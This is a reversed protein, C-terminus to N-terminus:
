AASIDNIRMSPTWTEFSGQKLLEIDLKTAYLKTFYDFISLIGEDIGFFGVYRRIGREITDQPAKMHVKDELQVCYAQAIVAAIASFKDTINYYPEFVGLTEEAFGKAAFKQAQDVLNNWQRELIQAEPTEYLLPYSSLYGFANSLNNSAIADYFLHKVRITDAMEQAETSYDPFSKLIECAKRASSYDGQVYGKQSQIYLKDAYDMITTYESFEKLFPHMKILEFFKVFDRAAIVKKMYEYMKRQDFLQQMLVTKDSIGRYPALLQRAQEDGNQTLILEQAKYFLKKWRMEMKRYPESDKFAPYQKAMSYALPFRGEQVNHQFQTYKEYASFM